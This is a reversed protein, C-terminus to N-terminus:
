AETPKLIPVLVNITRGTAGGYALATQRAQEGRRQRLTPDALLPAAAQALEDANRVRIGGGGQELDLAPGAVTDTFEGFLVPRSSIAPELVNHGGFPLLTGGVFAIDSAAYASALHGLEDLLLCDAARPRRSSYRLVSLGISELSRCLEEAREVHRPALLLRASPVSKRIRSFASLVIEEEGPRTSGAALVEHGQWGMGGFFARMKEVAEAEPARADYKVNGCIHIRSRPLGLAAFREADSGTQVAAADIHALLPSIAPRIWLYRALSRETLRGNAVCVRLGFRRAAWLTMPWLETEVIVLAHPRARKLFAYVAPYFDCPALVALDVGDLRSAQERGAVTSTTMLIKSSGRLKKLLAAAAAVEGVSAAHIWLVPDPRLRGLEAASICGLRQRLEAPGERLSAGRGALIFGIAVALAVAPFFLQYVALLLITM